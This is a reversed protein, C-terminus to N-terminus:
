HFFASFLFGLSIALISLAIFLYDEKKLRLTELKMKRVKNNRLGRSYGRLALSESITRSRKAMNLMLPYFSMIMIKLYYFIYRVKGGRANVNPSNGRLRYSRSISQYEDLLVPLIRYAFSIGFVLQAPLHFWLFGIALRDPELGSFVILSALSVLAVKLTIIIIPIMTEKTGGFILSSVVLYGTQSFIGVCFFFIILPAIRTIAAIIAMFIFLVLLISWDYIFWPLLGFISYWVLLVRPDLQAVITDSNGYANLLVQERLYTISVKQKFKKYFRKFM